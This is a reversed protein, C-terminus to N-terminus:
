DEKIYPQPYHDDDTRHWQGPIGCEQCSQFDYAHIALHHMKARIMSAVYRGADEPDERHRARLALSELEYSFDRMVRAVSEAWRAAAEVTREDTRILPSDIM